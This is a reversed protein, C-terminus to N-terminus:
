RSEEPLGLIYESILQMEEDSVLTEPYAPMDFGGTRVFHIIEDASRYQGKFQATRLSPGTMERADTHCSDCYRGFLVKGRNESTPVLGTRSRPVGAAGEGAGGAPAGVSLAPGGPFWAAFTAGAGPRLAYVVGVGLAIAVALLLLGSAHTRRM